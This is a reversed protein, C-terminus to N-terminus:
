KVHSDGLLVESQDIFVLPMGIRLAGSTNEHSGHPLTAPWIVISGAKVNISQYNSSDINEKALAISKFSPFQINLEHFFLQSICPYYFMGGNSQTSDTLAIWFTVATKYPKEWLLVDQHLPIYSEDVHRKVFAAHKILVPDKIYSRVLALLGTDRFWDDWFVKDQWYLKRIKKASKRVDDHIDFEPELAKSPSTAHCIVWDMAARTSEQSIFDTKIHVPVQDHFLNTM